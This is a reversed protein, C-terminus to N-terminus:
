CKDNEIKELYKEFLEDNYDKGSDLASLIDEEVSDQCIIYFYWCVNKQGIRHIRAGSQIYQDVSEPLDFYIMRCAKQLNLGYSASQYQCLVVANNFKDYASLDKVDGNVSGYPKNLKKCIEVLCDYDQKFQYFLVVRENTDELLDSVCDLKEKNMSGCLMRAYLRKTLVNDGVYDKGDVTIIRNRMFQKYEKSVSIKVYSKNVAPLDIVDETSMFVAGNNKLEEMMKDTNKYGYASQIKCQGIDILRWKIFEDWWKSKTYNLGLMKAHTYLKEYRGACPSGSLLIKNSPKMKLIFKTRKSSEHMIKSSEDLMLTYDKLKLLEPRRFLIDYNIIAFGEFNPIEKFKTLDLLPIQPFFDSFTHKWTLILSKPCVLLTRLNDFILCQCIGTISKGLGMELFFGVNEKGKVANIADVQHQYLEIETEM